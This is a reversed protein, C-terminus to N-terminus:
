GNAYTESGTRRPEEMDAASAGRQEVPKIRTMGTACENQSYLVRVLLSVAFLEQVDDVVTQGPQTQIPVFTRIHTSRKTGIPLALPSLDIGFVELFQPRRPPRVLLISRDPELQEAIAVFHKVVM